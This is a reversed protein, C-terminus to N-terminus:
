GSSAAAVPALARSEAPYPTPAHHVLPGDAHGALQRVQAPTLRRVAVAPSRWGGRGPVSVFSHNASCFQGVGPRGSQFFTHEHAALGPIPNLLKVLYPSQDTPAAVILTSSDLAVWDVVSRAWFCGETGPLEAAQKSPQAACAAATLSFAAVLPGLWRSKTKM